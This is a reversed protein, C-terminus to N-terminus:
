YRRLQYDLIGLYAIDKEGEPLTYIFDELLQHNGAETMRYAINRAITSRSFDYPNLQKFRMIAGTFDRIKLREAIDMKVFETDSVQNNQKGYDSAEQLKRARVLAHTIAKAAKNKDSSSTLQDHLSRAKDIEGLQAWGIALAALSGNYQYANKEADIQTLDQEAESLMRRATQPDGVLVFGEALEGALSIRTSAVSERRSLTYIDYMLQRALDHKQQKVLVQAMAVYARHKSFAAILDFTDNLMAIAQDAQGMETLAILMLQYARARDMTDPIIIRARARAGEFDGAYVLAVLLEEYLPLLRASKSSKNLTTIANDWQRLAIQTRALAALAADDDPTAELHKQLTREIQHARITRGALVEFAALESLRDLKTRGELKEVSARLTDLHTIAAAQTDTTDQALTLSPLMLLVALLFTAIRGSNLNM